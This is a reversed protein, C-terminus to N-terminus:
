IDFKTYQHKMDLYLEKGKVVLGCIMYTNDLSQIQFHLKIMHM